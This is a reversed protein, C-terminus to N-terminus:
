LEGITPIYCRITKDVRGLEDLKHMRVFSDSVDKDETVSKLHQKCENYLREADTKNNLIVGRM